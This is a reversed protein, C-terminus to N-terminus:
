KRVEVHVIPRELWRVRPVSVLVLRTGGGYDKPTNCAYATNAPRLHSKAEINLEKTTATM